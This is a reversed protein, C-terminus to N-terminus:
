QCNSPAISRVPQTPYLLATLVDLKERGTRLAAAARDLCEQAVRQMRDAEAMATKAAAMERAYEGLADEVQIQATSNSM